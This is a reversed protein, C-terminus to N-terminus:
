GRGFAMNRTVSSLPWLTRACELPLSRMCRIRMRGPSRTCTSIVGYSRVRPRMMQRCLYGLSRHLNSRAHLRDALLALHDAAMPADHDDAGVRPVLLPLPLSMARMAPTSM